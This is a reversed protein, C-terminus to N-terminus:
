SLSLEVHEELDSRRLQELQADSLSSLAFREDDLLGDVIQELPTDTYPGFLDSKAEEYFRRMDAGYERSRQKLMEIDADDNRYVQEKWNWNKLLKSISNLKIENVRDVRENLRQMGDMKKSMSIRAKQIRDNVKREEDAVVDELNDINESLTDLDGDNLSAQADRVAKKAEPDVEINTHLFEEALVRQLVTEEIVQAVDNLRTELESHQYRKYVSELQAQFSENSM